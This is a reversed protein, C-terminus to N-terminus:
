LPYPIIELIQRPELEGSASGSARTQPTLLKNPLNASSVVSSLLAHYSLSPFCYFSNGTHFEPENQAHALLRGLSGM